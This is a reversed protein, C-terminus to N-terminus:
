VFRDATPILLERLARELDRDDAHGPGPLGVADRAARGLPHDADPAPRARRQGNADVVSGPAIAYLVGLDVGLVGDSFPVPPGPLCAALIPTAGPVANHITPTFTPNGSTPPGNDIDFSIISRGGNSQTTGLGTHDLFGNSGEFFYFDLLNTTGGGGSVAQLRGYASGASPGEYVWGAVIDPVVVTVRSGTASTVPEDQVWTGVFGGVYAHFRVHTSGDLGTGELAIETGPAAAEGAISSLSQAGLAPALLAFLPLTSTRLWHM